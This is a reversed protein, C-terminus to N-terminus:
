GCCSGQHCVDDEPPPVFTPRWCGPPCRVCGCGCVASADKVCFSMRRMFREPVRATSCTLVRFLNSSWGGGGRHIPPLGSGTPRAGSWGGQTPSGAGAGGGGRSRAGPYPVHPNPVLPPSQNYPVHKPPHPRVDLTWHGPSTLHLGSAGQRLPVELPSAQDRAVWAAGRVRSVRLGLGCPTGPPRDAHPMAMHLGRPWLVQTVLKVERPM